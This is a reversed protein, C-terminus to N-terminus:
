TMVLPNDDQFILCISSHVLLRGLNRAFSCACNPRNCGQCALLLATFDITFAKFLRKPPGISRRNPAVHQEGDRLRDRVDENKTTM